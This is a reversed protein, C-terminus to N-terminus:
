HVKDELGLDRAVTEVQTQPRNEQLMKLVAPFITPEAFGLLTQVEQNAWSKVRELYEGGLDRATM